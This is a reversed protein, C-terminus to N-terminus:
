RGNAVNGDHRGWQSRLPPAQGPLYRVESRGSTDYRIRTVSGDKEIRDYEFPSQDDYWDDDPYHVAASRVPALSYENSVYTGNETRGWEALGPTAKWGEPLGTGCFLLRSGATEKELWTWLSKRNILDRDARLSARLLNAFEQTDSLEKTGWGILVGNHMLALDEPDGWEKNLVWHPHAAHKNRLGHTAYRWHMAFTNVNIEGADIDGMTKRIVVRKRNRSLYMVGTGDQNHARTNREEDATLFRGTTTFAILCM